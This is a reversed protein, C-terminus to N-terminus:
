TQDEQSSPFWTQDEQSSPTTGRHATTRQESKIPSVIDHAKCFFFCCFFFCLFFNCRQNNLYLLKRTKHPPSLSSSTPHQARLEQLPHTQHHLPLPTRTGVRHGGPLLATSKGAESTLCWGLELAGPTCFLLQLSPCGRRYRQLSWTCRDGATVGLKPQLSKDGGEGYSLLSLASLEAQAQQSIDWSPALAFGPSASCGGPGVCGTQCQWASM